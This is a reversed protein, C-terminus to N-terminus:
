AGVVQLSKATDVISEELSRWKIGLTEQVRKNNFTYIGEKPYDGGPTSDTPLKDKYGPFTKAIIQAIERNSFHGPVVLLRKNAAEPKEMALVPCVAADRVDVFLFLGTAPIEDKARGQM